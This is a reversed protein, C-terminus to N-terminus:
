IRIRFVAYDRVVKQAAAAVAVHDERLLGHVGIIEPRIERIDDGFVEGGVARVCRLEIPRSSSRPIVTSYSEWM